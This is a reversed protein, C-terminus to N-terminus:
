GHVGLSIPLASLRILKSGHAFHMMPINRGNNCQCFPDNKRFKKGLGTM